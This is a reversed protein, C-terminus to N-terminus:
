ELGNFLCIKKDLWEECQTEAEASIELSATCVNEIASKIEEASEVIQIQRKKM